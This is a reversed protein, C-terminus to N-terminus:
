TFDVKRLSSEDKCDKSLLREAMILYLIDIILM